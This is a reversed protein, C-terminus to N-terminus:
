GVDGGSGGVYKCDDTAYCNAAPITCTNEDECCGIGCKFVDVYKDKWLCTPLSSSDERICM